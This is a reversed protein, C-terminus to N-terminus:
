PRSKSTLSMQDRELQQDMCHKSQAAASTVDGKMTGPRAMGTPMPEDAKMGAPAQMAPAPAMTTGECAAPM